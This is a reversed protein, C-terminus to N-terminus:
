LIVIEHTDSCILGHKSITVSGNTAPEPENKSGTMKKFLEIKEVFELLPIKQLLGYLETAYLTRGFPWGRGDPGGIYPNLYRYLLEEAHLKTKERWHAEHLQPLRLTARVQVWVFDPEVAHVFIGVPRKQNLVTEVENILSTSPRVDNPSPRIDAKDETQADAKKSHVPLVAVSVRGLQAGFQEKSLEGPALCCARAVGKVNTAHYEFDDSTVARHRSRLFHSARLKADDLSQADVGDEAAKWNTVRAIHSKPSREIILTEKAVNGLAGGSYRYRSFKLLSGKPPAAGFKYVQRNPQLLAPGLTITGSFHDLTFHTAQENSDAFDEVELWPKAPENPPEVLLYETEQDLPAVVPSNLLKFTQGPTGDSYGLIENEVMVVQEAHVTAGRAEPRLYRQIEPSVSGKPLKDAEVTLCCRLWYARMDPIGKVEGMKMAPLRLVWEGDENFAGTTDAEIECARWSSGEGQVQWELPPKAPKVKNWGAKECGMVLALVYGSLDNEFALYFADDKSPPNTFLIIPESQVSQLDHKKWGRNQDTADYSFAALLRPPTIVFDTTTTFVIAPETETRQTAIETGKRIEVPRPTDISCVHSQSLYFTLDAQAPQPPKLRTGILELFKVYTKEPVQNVRYLLMETMWAFLEILAVGPDSVNHDTWEPCFHPILRKAEDVIDQFRRDDLIPTPLPM